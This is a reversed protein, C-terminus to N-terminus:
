TSSPWQVVKAGCNSGSSVATSRGHEDIDGVGLAVHNFGAVRPRTFEVM